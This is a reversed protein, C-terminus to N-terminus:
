KGDISFTKEAAMTVCTGIKWGLLSKKKAETRKLNTEKQSKRESKIEILHSNM